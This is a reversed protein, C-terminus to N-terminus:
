AVFFYFFHGETGYDHIPLKSYVPMGGMLEKVYPVLVNRIKLDINQLLESIILPLNTKGVLRIISEIHPIGVFSSYLTAIHSYAVSLVKSGFLFTPNPKPASERPVEETFPLPTQVFRSTISNFNWSPAFDYV